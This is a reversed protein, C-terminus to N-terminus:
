TAIFRFLIIFSCGTWTLVQEYLQVLSGALQHTKGTSAWSAQSGLSHQLVPQLYAAYITQLQERDPYSSSSLAFSCISTSLCFCPSHPDPNSTSWFLFLPSTLSVSYLFNTLKCYALHSAIPPSFFSEM